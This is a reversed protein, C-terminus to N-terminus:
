HSEKVEVGIVGEEVQKFWEELKKNIEEVERVLQEYEDRSMCVCRAELLRRIKSILSKVLEILV